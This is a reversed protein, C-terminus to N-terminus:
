GAKQRVEELSIVKSPQLNDRATKLNAGILHSYGQTTTISEHGMWKLVTNIDTGRGILRTCCTHRLCYPTFEKDDKLGLVVKMCNWQTLYKIYTLEKNRLKDWIRCLSDFARDTLLVPRPVNTKTDWFIVKREERMFETRQRSFFESPRAGTDVLVVTVDYCDPLGAATWYDLVQKEEQDSLYRTRGPKKKYYRIRPKAKIKKMDLAWELVKSLAALFRNVTNTNMGEEVLFTKYREIEQFDLNRIDYNDGFFTCAKEANRYLCRATRATGRWYTINCGEVCVRLTFEKPIEVQKAEGRPPVKGYKLLNFKVEAERTKADEYNDLTERHRIVKDAVTVAVDVQFKNGVPRVAM